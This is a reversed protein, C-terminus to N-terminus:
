AAGRRNEEFGEGNAITEELLPGFIFRSLYGVVPVAVGDGALHYAANYDEPLRFHDPLGMLRALERPSLLRSRVKAGEVLLVTQRSSGGSPTRLCGAIGDFRCETRVLRQGGESRTRRYATGVVLKKLAKAQRLKAMNAPSMQSILKETVERPNWDVGKPEREILSLLSPPRVAPLPLNWWIWQARLEEPMRDFATQVRQPHWHPSPGFASLGPPLVLSRDIAVIFLRSRSQPLFMRADAVLAGVRYGESSFARILTLFDQGKNSTLAGVVNEFCIIRPRRGEEMVRRM